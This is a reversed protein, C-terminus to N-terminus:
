SGILRFVLEGSGTTPTWQFTIYDKNSMSTHTFGGTPPTCMHPQIDSGTAMLQNGVITQSQSSRLQVLFGQFQRGAM